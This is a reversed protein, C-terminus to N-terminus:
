LMKYRKCRACDVNWSFFIFFWCDVLSHSPLASLWSLPRSFIVCNSDLGSICKSSQKVDVLLDELAFTDDYLLNARFIVPLPHSILAM